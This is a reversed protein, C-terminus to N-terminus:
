GGHLGNTTYRKTRKREGMALFSCAEEQGDGGGEGDGGGGQTRGAAGAEGGGVEDECVGAEDEAEEERGTAEEERHNRRRRGQGAAIAEGGGAKDERVHAKDETEEEWSRADRQGTLYTRQEERGRHEEREGLSWFRNSKHLIREIRTAITRNTNRTPV